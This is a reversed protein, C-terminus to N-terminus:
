NQSVTIEYEKAADMNVNFAFSYTGDGDLFVQYGEYPHTNSLKIDTQKGDAKFSVSPAKYDSFGYVRVAATSKGGSIKFVAKNNAARVSPVFRDEYPEGTIVTIRYPDTCSDKRVNQVNTDDTSAASGWPLLILEIDMVDGKKLTVTGAENLTLSCVNKKFLNLWSGGYVCKNEKFLFSGTYKKGGITIDSKRIILAFNVTDDAPRDTDGKNTGGFYDFYPYNKGLVHYKVNSTSTNASDYAPQGNENLYGIKSFVFARSNFTFFSFNDRFNNITVDGLVQLKINYYTRNEDTQAMELHRYSVQIKGDDSLYDTTIDAYVPGASTILARQSETMYSKNSSDKYQLFHLEGVSTHQTGTGNDWLPASNARFDPLVWGDKDYVYYPTICNTETVGVSLHYYPVHFAIFSLQKLPYNGWNQYLHLVTFRKEEDKDVTVPAYVEGYAAEGSYDEPQYVPEENEGDFNKGVELPIPLMCGNNDLMAACELRGRRTAANEATQIYIIRDYLGDGKVYTKVRMHKNPQSYMAEQFEMARVTFKYCGALADYGAYKADDFKNANIETLPHREIYAEKKLDDFGHGSSVYIRHGFRLEGGKTIAPLDIGRTVVYNGGTQEVKIDGNGDCAPMIVGYVGAGEIDFAVYEASSFDFGALASTEGKANKFSVAKVTNAAIVTKTELRGGSSYDNVAVVRLEEHMKDPYTHFTHEFKLSQISGFTQDRFHFDYYYYGLRNSNMRGDASSDAAKYTGNPNVIYTETETFYPVGTESYVGEVKKGGSKKLNYVVSSKQNTIIFGNRDPDTYRGQVGNALSNATRITKYWGSENEEQEPVPVVEGSSLARFLSVVDKNDIGKDKNFDCNKEVAGNKDGSVFRFLVVVDKNDILGDGNTDGRIIVASVGTTLFVASIMLFTLLLSLIKKM